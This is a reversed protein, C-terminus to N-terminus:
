VSVPGFAVISVGNGAPGGGVEIAGAMLVGGGCAKGAKQYAPSSSNLVPPGGPPGKSRGSPYNSVGNARLCQSFQALEAQSPSAPFPQGGRLANQAAALYQICATGADPNQGSPLVGDYDGAPVTIHIVKSVDVTPAAQGPDGHGRMCAAWEDLLQTVNGQTATQSGAATSSGTGDGSSKGPTVMHPSSPGGGCGATLLAVGAM